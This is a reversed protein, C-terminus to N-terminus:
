RAVGGARSPARSTSPAVLGELRSALSRATQLLPSRSLRGTPEEGAELHRVATQDHAIYGCDVLFPTATTDALIGALDAVDADAHRPTTILIPLLRPAAGRARALEPALRALRDRVRVVSTLDPRGVVIVIDARAAVHMLPSLSHLYGVDVFVPTSCRGLADALHPWDAVKAMQEALVAGPVVHTSSNLQHAHASVLGRDRNARAATVVSLVTPTEPLASGGPRLRLALDGGLPDAEVVIAPGPLASALAVATTTVGPSGKDGCLAILM